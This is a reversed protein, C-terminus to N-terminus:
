PSIECVIQYKFDCPVDHWKGSTFTIICDEGTGLNNPQGSDWKIFTLPRDDLDTFQGEHKRDTAAIFPHSSSYEEDVKELAQNEEETRPLVLTPGIDSCFKLGEDFTDLHGDTVYYKLGIKRFTRFRSAKELLSLRSTLIQIESQLSIIVSDNALPGSIGADGRDGKPGPPGAPGTPGMKGPPGQVGARTHIPFCLTQSCGHRIYLLRINFVSLSVRVCM